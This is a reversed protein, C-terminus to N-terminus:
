CIGLLLWVLPQHCRFTIVFQRSSMMMCVLNWNEWLFKSSILGQLLYRFMESGYLQNWARGSIKVWIRCQYKIELCSFKCNWGFGMIFIIRNHSIHGNLIVVILRCIILCYVLLIVIRDAFCVSWPGYIFYLICMIFLRGTICMCFFKIRLLCLSVFRTPRIIPSECGSVEAMSSTQEQSSTLTIWLCAEQHAWARIWATQWVQWPLIINLLM